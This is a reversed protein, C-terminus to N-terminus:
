ERSEGRNQRRSIGRQVHLDGGVGSDSAKSEAPRFRVEVAGGGVVLVAGRGDEGMSRTRASRDRVIGRRHDDARSGSGRWGVLEGEDLVVNGM